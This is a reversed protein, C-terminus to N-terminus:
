SARPTVVSSAVWALYSPLGDAVPLVVLEPVEYSHLQPLREKLADVASALTKAICLFEEGREVAGQWRYVSTIPGVVNVCACLQEGVLASALAEAQARDGCTMLAVVVGAGADAASPFSRDTM